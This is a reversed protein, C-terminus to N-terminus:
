SPKDREIVSLFQLLEYNTRLGYEQMVRDKHTYVTKPKVHLIKAIDLIDINMQLLSMVLSQQKSLKSQRCNFCNFCDNVIISSNKRQKQKEEKSKGIKLLEGIHELSAGRHIFIADSFCWPLRKNAVIPKETIIIVTKKEIKCINQNCTFQEGNRISFIVVDKDSLDSARLHQYTFSIEGGKNNFVDQIYAVLGSRYFMDSDNILIKM